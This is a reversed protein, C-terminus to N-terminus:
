ALQGAWFASGRALEAVYGRVDESRSVDAHCIEVRTGLAAVAGCRSQLGELNIDVMMVDAGQAALVLSTAHGISGAAGTVIISRGALSSM